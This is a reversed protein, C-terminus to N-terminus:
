LKQMKMCELLRYSLMINKLMSEDGKEVPNIVESRVSTNMNENVNTAEYTYTNDEVYYDDQNNKGEQEKAVEYTSKYNSQKPKCSVM